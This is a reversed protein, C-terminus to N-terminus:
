HDILHHFLVRVHLRHRCRQPFHVGRIPMAPARHRPHFPLVVRRRRRFQINVVAHAAPISKRRSKEVSHEAACTRFFRHLQSPRMSRQQRCKRPVRRHRRQLLNPRNRRAPRRPYLSSAPPLTYFPPLAVRWYVSIVCVPPVIAFTVIRNPSNNIARPNTPHISVPRTCGVASIGAANPTTSASAPPIARVSFWFFRIIAICIAAVIPSIPNAPVALLM